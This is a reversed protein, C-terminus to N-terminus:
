HALARRLPVPSRSLRQSADVGFPPQALRSAPVNTARDMSKLRVLMINRLERMLLSM